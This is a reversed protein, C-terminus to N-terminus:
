TISRKSVCYINQDIDVAYSKMKSLQLKNCLKRRVKDDIKTSM